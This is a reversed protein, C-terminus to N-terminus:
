AMQAAVPQRTPPSYRTQSNFYTGISMFWAPVGSGDIRGPASPPPQCGLPINQLITISTHSEAFAERRLEEHTDSRSCDFNQTGPGRELSPSGESSSRSLGVVKSPRTSLGKSMGRSSAVMGFGGELWLHSGANFPILGTSTLSISLSTGRGSIGEM